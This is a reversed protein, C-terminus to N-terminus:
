TVTSLASMTLVQPSSPLELSKHKESNCIMTWGWLSLSAKTIIVGTVLKPPPSCLSMFFQDLAHSALFSDQTFSGATSHIDAHWNFFTTQKKLISNWKVRVISQIPFCVSFYWIFNKTTKNIRMKIMPIRFDLYLLNVQSTKRVLKSTKSALKAGNVRSIKRRTKRRLSLEM